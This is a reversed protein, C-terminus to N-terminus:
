KAYSPASAPAGTSGGFLPHGFLKPFLDDIYIQVSFIMGINPGTQRNIPITAEVGIQCSKGEWLVGPNITGTSSGGDRNEPTEMSLEVLPIMDRFPHPLGTDKVHQQLYPINYQLSLGWELVNSDLSRVPFGQGVTGTLALPRLMRLSEPLDGFGKGFYITPTLTSYNETLSQRGSGGIEWEMGVSLIFEHAPSELLQYKASLALNDFGHVSSAGKPNLITYGGSIGLAFKPFIEKSFEFSIGIERTKPGDEGAPNNFISITPFSLEDTAFPDDTQITPPFFRDGEFGHASSKTPAYITAVAGLALAFRFLENLPPTVCAEARRAAVAVHTQKNSVPSVSVASSQLASFFM